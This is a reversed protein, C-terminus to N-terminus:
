FNSRKVISNRCATANSQYLSWLTVDFVTEKISLISMSQISLFLPSMRIYTFFSIFNLFIFFIEDTIVAILTNTNVGKKESEFFSYNVAIRRVM